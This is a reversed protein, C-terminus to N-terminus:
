KQDGIMVVKSAGLISVLVEPELAHAADDVIVRFDIEDGVNKRNHEDKSTKWFDEPILKHSNVCTTCIIRFQM